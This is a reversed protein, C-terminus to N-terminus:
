KDRNPPISKVAILILKKILGNIHLSDYDNYTGNYLKYNYVSHKSLVLFANGFGPPILLM